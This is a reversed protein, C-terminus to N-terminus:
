KIKKEMLYRKLRVGRREVIQKEICQYGRAEFFPKSTISANTNMHTNGRATAYRELNELLLTGVGQNLYDSDVYLRDLYGTQGINGFGIIHENDVVVLTHNKNLSTEWRYVNAEKPAWAELQEETYDKACVSHVNDYFLQMVEELDSPQYLRIDM